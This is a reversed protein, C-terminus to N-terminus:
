VRFITGMLLLGKARAEKTVHQTVPKNKSRGGHVRAVSPGFPSCQKGREVPEVVPSLRRQAGQSSTWTFYKSIIRQGQRLVTSSGFKLNSNEIPATWQVVTQAYQLHVM